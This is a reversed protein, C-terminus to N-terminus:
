PARPESPPQTKGPLPSDLTIRGDPHTFHVTANPDGTVTWGLLHIFHAHHHHCLLVMEDLSTRAGNAWGPIHHGTCWIGPSECGPWRCARDRAELAKRLAPPETRAGRGVDLPLGDEWRIATIEAGCCLALVQTATLM